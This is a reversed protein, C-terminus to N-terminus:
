EKNKTDIWITVPGDNVLEVQMMAGFRGTQVRGPIKEEFKRIFEEYLPIAKEPHAARVFSPRFGKKTKAHLTFQSVILIEGGTELLSLNMKGEEDPFIRLHLIKHALWEADRDDDAHEIGTLVLLGKGIKAVTEGEIYVAARTVRQILTRM